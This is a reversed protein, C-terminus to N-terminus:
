EDAAGDLATRKSSRKTLNWKVFAAMVKGKATSDVGSLEDVDAGAITLFYHTDSSLAELSGAKTVACRRKSWSLRKM